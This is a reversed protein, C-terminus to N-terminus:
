YINVGLIKNLTDRLKDIQEQCEKTKNEVGRPPAIPCRIGNSKSGLAISVNYRGQDTVLPEKDFDASQLNLLKSDSVTELLVDLESQTLSREIRSTPTTRDGPEFEQYTIEGSLIDVRFSNGTISGGAFFNLIFSDITNLDTM